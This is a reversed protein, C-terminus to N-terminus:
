AQQLGWGVQHRSELNLVVAAAADGVAAGSQRRRRRGRSQGQGRCPRPKGNLPPAQLGVNLLWSHRQAPPSAAPNAHDSSPAPVSLAGAAPSSLLAFSWSCFTRSGNVWFVAGVSGM